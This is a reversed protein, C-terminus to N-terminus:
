LKGITYKSAGAFRADRPCEVGVQRFGVWSRLGRLMRNREPFMALVDLVRRDILSFDGADVAVDVESIMRLPRYFLSYATRKRRGEKRDTCFGGVGDGGE